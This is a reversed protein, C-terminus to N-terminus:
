LPKNMNIKSSFIHYILEYVISFDTILFYLNKLEHIQFILKISLMRNISIAIKLHYIKSSVLMKRPTIRKKKTKMERKMLTIIVTIM